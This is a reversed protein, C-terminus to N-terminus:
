GNNAKKDYTIVEKVLNYYVIIQINIQMPTKTYKMIYNRIKM